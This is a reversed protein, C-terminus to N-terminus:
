ILHSISLFARENEPIINDIQSLVRYGDFETDTGSTDDDSARRVVKYVVKV